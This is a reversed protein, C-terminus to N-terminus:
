KVRMEIDIQTTKELIFSMPLRTTAEHGDSVVATITVESGARERIAYRGNGDTTATGSVGSATYCIRVGAVGKRGLTVVGHVRYRM